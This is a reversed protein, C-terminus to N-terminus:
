ESLVRVLTHPQEGLAAKWKEMRAVQVQSDDMFLVGNLADLLAKLVNDLDPKSVHRLRAIGDRKPVGKPRAFVFVVQVEVAKLLPPGSHAMRAAMRATAKFGNVPSDAPTYNMAMPRGGIRKVTMRQRPQAVPIGPVVFSITRM